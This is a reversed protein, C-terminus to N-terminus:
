VRKRMRKTVLVVVKGYIKLVEKPKEIRDKSTAAKDIKMSIEELIAPDIEKSAEKL